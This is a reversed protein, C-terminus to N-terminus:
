ASVENVPVYVTYPLSSGLSALLESGTSTTSLNKIADAFRGFGLNSLTSQFTPLFPAQASALLPLSLVALVARLMEAPKYIIIFM